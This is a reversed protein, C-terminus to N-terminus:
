LAQISLFSLTNLFFKRLLNQKIEFLKYVEEVSSKYAFFYKASIADWCWSGM